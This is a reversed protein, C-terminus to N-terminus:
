ECPTRDKLYKIAQELQIDDGKAISEVTARVEIDPSLGIQRTQGGDPYLIEIGSIYTYICGPLSVTAVDGDAGATQTGMIIAQPAKRFAMITYESQSISRENALLVINGKYYTSDGHLKLGTFGKFSGLSKSDMVRVNVVHTTEPYLKQGFTNILFDNPYERLDIILGKSQKIQPWLSYFYNNKWSAPNIYAIDEKMVFCTDSEKPNYFFNIDKLSYTKLTCHRKDKNHLYVIEITSDNTCLLSEALKSYGIHKNSAPILPMREKIIDKIKYNDISLIIDGPLIRSKDIKGNKLPKIGKMILTDGIFSLENLASRCGFYAMHLLTYDGIRINETGDTTIAHSDKIEHCLSLVAKQYKKKTNAKAFIPVYRHLVEEWDPLLHKYPYFYNIINWYRFLALMRLGDDNDKMKMYIEENTFIPCGTFLQCSIYKGPFVKETMMIKQMMDDLSGKYEVGFNAIWEKLIDECNSKADVIKPMISFLEQDIDYAGKAVSPHFYKLVGWTKCLKEMNLFARRNWHVNELCSSDSGEAAVAIINCFYLIIILCHYYIRHYTM